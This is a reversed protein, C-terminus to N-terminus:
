GKQMPSDKGSGRSAITTNEKPQLSEFGNKGRHLKAHCSKCVTITNTDLLTLEINTSVPIIHHMILQGGRVGCMQCTFNDRKFISLRLLHYDLSSRILNIPQSKGGKWNWHKDGKISLGQKQRSELTHIQNSSSAVLLAHHKKAWESRLIRQDLPMMDWGGQRRPIDFRVLWSHITRQHCNCILSIALCTQNLELYQTLLWKKNKYLPTRKM